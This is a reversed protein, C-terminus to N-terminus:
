QFFLLLNKDSKLKKLARSIWARVSNSHVGYIEAIEISNFGILKLELAEIGKLTIGKYNEKLINLVQKIYFNDYDYNYSFIKNNYELTFDFSINKKNKSIISKCYNILSNKIIPYAFTSFKVNRKYDYLMSAKCLALCGNQFLDDFGLGIISENIIIHTKIIYSVLKLNNEVLITQKKNLEKM